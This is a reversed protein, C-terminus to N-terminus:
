KVGGALIRDTLQEALMYCSLAERKDLARRDAYATYLERARAQDEGSLHTTALCRDFDFVLHRTKLFNMIQLGRRVYFLLNQTERYPRDGYKQGPRGERKFYGYLEFERKKKLHERIDDDTLPRRRLDDRLDEFEPASHLTVSSGEGVMVIWTAFSNRRRVYSGIGELSNVYQTQFKVDQLEHMLDQAEGNFDMEMGDVFVMGNIDSVGEVYHGTNASGLVLAGALNEGYKGVLHSRIRQLSKELPM